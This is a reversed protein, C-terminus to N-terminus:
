LLKAGDAARTAAGRVEQEARNAKPTVRDITEHAKSALRDTTPSGFENSSTTQSM